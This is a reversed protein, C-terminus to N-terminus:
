WISITMPLSRLAFAVWVEISSTAPVIGGHPWSEWNKLRSM